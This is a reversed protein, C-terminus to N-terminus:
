EDCLVTARVLKFAYQLRDRKIADNSRAAGASTAARSRQRGEDPPLFLEIKEAPAPLPRALALTLKREDDALRAQALRPQDFLKAGAEALCRV